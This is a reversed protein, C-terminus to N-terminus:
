TAVGLWLVLARSVRVLPDPELEGIVSSVRDRRLTMLKDVMIQSVSRLGNLASPEITVRFVPAPKLHSTILAVTVSRHELFEDSQVVLAPRLKGYDGQFAALLISGRKM